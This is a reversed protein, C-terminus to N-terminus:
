RPRCRTARARACLRRKGAARSSAAPGRGSSAPLCGSTPFRARGTRTSAGPAARAPAGRWTASAEFNLLVRASALIQFDAANPPAAGITGAAILADVRDLLAPLRRVDESVLADESGADAALRRVIPKTLLAVLGPAPLEAVEGVVWRHLSADRMVAWRFIRRPVPQVNDHGWREAEEVARRADADPPFLPREAILEDLARSIALSGQVKRGDALELAPVTRGTFGAARVLVPHLGSPLSVVRHPLRKHAAMATAAKAPNSLPTVYLRATM